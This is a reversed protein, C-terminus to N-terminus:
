FRGERFPHLRDYIEEYFPLYLAGNSEGPIKAYRRRGIRGKCGVSIKSALAITQAIQPKSFDEWAKSRIFSLTGDLNRPPATLDDINAGDIYFIIKYLERLEETSVNGKKSETPIPIEREAPLLYAGM